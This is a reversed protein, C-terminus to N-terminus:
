SQPSAPPFPPPAVFSSPAPTEDVSSPTAVQKKGWARAAITTIALADVLLMSRAIALQDHEAKRRVQDEGSLIRPPQGPMDLVARGTGDAIPNITQRRMNQDASDAAFALRDWLALARFVRPASFVAQLQETTFHASEPSLVALWARLESSRSGSANEHYLLAAQLAGVVDDQDFQDAKSTAGMQYLNKFILAIASSRTYGAVADKEEPPLSAAVESLKASVLAFAADAATASTRLEQLGLTYFPDKPASPRQQPAQQPQQRMQPQQPQEQPQSQQVPEKLGFHQGPALPGAASQAKIFAAMADPTAGGAGMGGLMQQFGQPPGAGPAGPQGPQMPQMQPPAQNLPAAGPFGPPMPRQAPNGFM